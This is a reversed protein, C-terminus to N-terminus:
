ELLPHDDHGGVIPLPAGFKTDLYVNPRARGGGSKESKERAKDEFSCLIEYEKENNNIKNACEKKIREEFCEETARGCSYLMGYQRLCQDLFNECKCARIEEVEEYNFPRVCYCQPIAYPIEEHIMRWGADCHDIAGKCPEKM